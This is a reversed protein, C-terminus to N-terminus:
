FAERCRFYAASDGGRARAIGLNVRESESAVFRLGARGSCYIHTAPDAVYRQRILALSRDRRLHLSL